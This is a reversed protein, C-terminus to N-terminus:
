ENGATIMVVNGQVELKLGNMRVITDLIQDWPVDRLRLTVSGSVGDGVVLNVNGVDALLRFVNHLDADKVDFDIRRGTFTSRSETRSSRATLELPRDPPLPQPADGARRPAAAVDLDDLVGAHGASDVNRSPGGCSVVIALSVVM